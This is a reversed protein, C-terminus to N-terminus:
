LQAAGTGSHYCFGRIVTGSGQAQLDEEYTHNDGTDAFPM